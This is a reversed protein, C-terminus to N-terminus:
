GCNQVSREPIHLRENEAGNILGDNEITIESGGGLRNIINLGVMKPYSHPKLTNKSKKQRLHMKRKVAM